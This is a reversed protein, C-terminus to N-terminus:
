LSRPPPATTTSPGSTFLGCSQLDQNTKAKRPLEVPFATSFTTQITKSLVLFHLHHGKGEEPTPPQGVGMYMKMKQYHPFTDEVRDM